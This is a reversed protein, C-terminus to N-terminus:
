EKSASSTAPKSEHPLPLMSVYKLPAVHSVEGLECRRQMGDFV